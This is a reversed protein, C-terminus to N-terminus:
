LFILNYYLDIIYINYNPYPWVEVKQLLILILIVKKWIYIYINRALVAKSIDGAFSIKKNNNKLHNSLLDNQNCASDLRKPQSHCCERHMRGDRCVSATFATTACPPWCVTSPSTWASWVCPASPCSLWIWWLYVPGRNIIFLKLDNVCELVSCSNNYMYILAPFVVHTNLCFCSTLLM